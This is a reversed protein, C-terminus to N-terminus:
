LEGMQAILAIERSITQEFGSQGRVRLAANRSLELFEDPSEVLRGMGDAMEQWSEGAALIGCREDVFEPIATVATTVPVLGSSMAEDRSVGQSDMRTPCLFIGYEGHIEAIEDQRLFRREVHVNELGALPALTEDFMPGDGILRFEMDGFFPRDKLALIARVSLDNAYKNSAYPRISLVKFRKAADKAVYRFLDTDIYNHIIEYSDGDLRVGVDEMVEDAFYRSVFVFQVNPPRLTFVDRWFRMRDESVRMASQRQEENTYNFDRRYWPQIEAGHIWVIVRIKDTYDRLVSWMAEDLFHVLITEFLNTELLQRLEDADGSRVDVNEFEHITRQGNPSLCFVETSLGLQQYGVVRRHVFGNRYLHEYSPYHNTLTLHKAQAITAGSRVPLHDMYLARAAASGSGKVRLGLKISEAGAPVAITHNRGAAKIHTGVRGGGADLFLVALELSVGPRVDLNFRLETRSWWDLPIVSRAYFYHHKDYPLQSVVALDGDRAQLSVSDALQNGFLEALQVADIRAFNPDVEFSARDIREARGLIEALPLGQRVGEMDEVLPWQRGGGGRVYSFEDLALADGVYVGEEIQAAFGALSESVADSAILSTRIDLSECSLYQAGNESLRLGDGNAEYFARKGLGAADSYRRALAIDTLYNAGYFDNSSWGALLTGPWKKSPNISAADQVGFVSIDPARPVQRALTSSELVLALRKKSWSQARYCKLVWDLDSRSRVVAIVVVEPLQTEVPLGAVKSIIYALRDQYTHESMVKRLGALRFRRYNVENDLLPRIRRVLESGSDTTVVLDGFMLRLGASYNSATVTNCGLLDFARRAFMTQSQKVSNLNIAYRYGKYALDIQDFPLSGKILHQYCEPFKYQPDDKGYNRDYIDVEIAGSLAGLFVDFDTQREPYRAYYAGAFCFANQREYKEIPNHASPQCAFPLLYVREHGLGAKYRSICEIDTTFVYDFRRATALFGEFHVPDEKNWFVTPIRRQRCWQIIGELEDCCHNVKGVWQDNLGRWASEIFLLDPQLAELEDRWGALSLQTIQCCDKYSSFTFEDMIAAMKVLSLERPAAPLRPVIHATAGPLQSRGHDAHDNNIDISANSVLQDHLLERAQAITVDADSLGVPIVERPDNGSRRRRMERYLRLLRMPLKVLDTGSGAAMAFARGAQNSVSTLRESQLEVCKIAETLTSRLEGNDRQLVECTAKLQQLVATLERLAVGSADAHKKYSDGRSEANALATKLEAVKNRARGLDEKAVQLQRMADSLQGGLSGVQGESEILRISLDRISGLQRGIEVGVAEVAVHLTRQWNEDREDLMERVRKADARIESMENMSAELRRVDGLQSAHRAAENEIREVLDALGSDTKQKVENASAVMESSLQQRVERALRESYRDSRRIDGALRRSERQLDIIEEFGYRAVVEREAETAFPLFIFTDTANYCATAIYGHPALVGWIDQYAAATQAECVIWPRQAAIIRDAGRLVDADMGEVDVKILRVPRGSVVEDLPRVAIEGAESVLLSTGGINGADYHAILAHGSKAGVAINHLEVKSELQNLRVNQKLYEFTSVVPEFAAVRCGLAHAFYVTHNGINAGADIVLDGPRLVKGLAELLELEYFNKSEVISKSIHDEGGPLAFDVHLGKYEFSCHKSDM